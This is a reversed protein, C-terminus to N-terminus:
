FRRVCMCVIEKHENAHDIAEEIDFYRYPSVRKDVLRNGSVINKKAFASYRFRVRFNVSNHEAKAAFYEKGNLPQIDCRRTFSSANPSQTTDVIDEWTDLPGGYEDKGTARLEVTVRDRLRGAPPLDM